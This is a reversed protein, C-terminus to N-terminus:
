QIHHAIRAFAQGATSVSYTGPTKFLDESDILKQHLGRWFRVCFTSTKNPHQLVTNFRAVIDEISSHKNFELTNTLRYDKDFIGSDKAEYVRHVAGKKSALRCFVPRVTHHKNAVLM